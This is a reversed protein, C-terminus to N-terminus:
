NNRRIEGNKGNAKTQSIPKGAEPVIGHELFFGNALELLSRKEIAARFEPDIAMRQNAKELLYEGLMKEIDEIPLNLEEASLSKEFEITWQDFLLKPDMGGFRRFIKPKRVWSSTIQLTPM